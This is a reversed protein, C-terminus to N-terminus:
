TALEKRIEEVLADPNQKGSIIYENFRARRIDSIDCLLLRAYDRAEQSVSSAYEWHELAALIDDHKFFDDGQKRLAASFATFRELLESTSVYEPISQNEKVYVWHDWRAAFPKEFRTFTSEQNKLFGELENPPILHQFTVHTRSRAANELIDGTGRLAYAGQSFWPIRCPDLTYGMVGVVEIRSYTIDAM